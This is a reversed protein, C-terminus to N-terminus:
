FVYKLFHNSDYKWASPNWHLNYFLKSIIMHVAWQSVIIIIIIIIIFCHSSPWSCSAVYVYIGELRSSGDRRKNSSWM